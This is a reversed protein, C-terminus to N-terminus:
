QQESLKFGFEEILQEKIFDDIEFINIGSYKVPKEIDHLFLVLIADSLTFDVPRTKIIKFLDNAYRITEEIHDFYGGEWKQHNNSSGPSNICNNLFYQYLSIAQDRNKEEIMYFPIM